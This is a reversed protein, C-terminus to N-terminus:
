KMLSNRIQLIILTFFLFIFQNSLYTLVKGFDRADFSSPIMNRSVSNYIQDLRALEEPTNKANPDVILGYFREPNSEANEFLFAVLILPLFIFVKM